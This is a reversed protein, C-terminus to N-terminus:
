FSHIFEFFYTIQVTPNIILWKFNLGQAPMIVLENTAAPAPGCATLLILSLLFLFQKLKHM